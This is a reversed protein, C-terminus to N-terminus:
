KGSGNSNGSDELGGMVLKQAGAMIAKFQEQTLDEYDCLADLGDVGLLEELLSAAAFDQGKRRLNRLYRIGVVARPVAPVTYERGDIKFLPIRDVLSSATSAPLEIIEVGEDVPSTSPKRTRSTM